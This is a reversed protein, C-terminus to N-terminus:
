QNLGYLMAILEPQPHIDSKDPRVSSHAYVGRKGRLADPCIEAIKNANEPAPIDLLPLLWRLLMDLAKIQAETYAEFYRYGRYPSHQGYDVIQHPLLDVQGQYYNIWRTKGGILQPTIPGWNALEIAVSNANLWVNNKSGNIGKFHKDQLGLHHIWFQLPVVSTIEGTRSIVIHAGVREPTMDWASVINKVVDGSVTHHLYIQCKNTVEQVYQAPPLYHRNINNLMDCLEVKADSPM